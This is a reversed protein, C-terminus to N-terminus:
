LLKADDENSDYLDISDIACLTDTAFIGMDWVPQTTKGDSMITHVTTGLPPYVIENYCAIM